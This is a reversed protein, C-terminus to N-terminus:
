ATRKRFVGVAQRPLEIAVFFTAPYLYDEGSEDIVRLLGRERAEPDPLVQYIKRTELSSAYGRNKICLAYTPTRM